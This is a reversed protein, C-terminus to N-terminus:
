NNYRSEDGDKVAGESFFVSTVNSILCTCIHFKMLRQQCNFNLEPSLTFDNKDQFNWMGVYQCLVCLSSLSKRRPSNKLVSRYDDGRPKVELQTSVRAEGVSNRAIVEVTGNDYQRTKPIDLHWMGDYTLKYRSGQLVFHSLMPHPCYLPVSNLATMQFISVNVVTHGNVLWMVRPRPHGTVRCCFRACEGEEVTFPDPKTVFIPAARAKDEEELSEPM